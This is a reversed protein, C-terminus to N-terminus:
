RHSYLIVFVKEPATWKELNNYANIADNKCMDIETIQAESSHQFYLSLVISHLAGSFTLKDFM